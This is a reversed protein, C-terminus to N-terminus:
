AFIASGDFGYKVAFEELDFHEPSSQNVALALHLFAKAEPQLVDDQNYDNKKLANSKM